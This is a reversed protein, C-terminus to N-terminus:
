QFVYGQTGAGSLQTQVEGSPSGTRTRRCVRASPDDRTQSM